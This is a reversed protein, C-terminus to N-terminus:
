TDTETAHPEPIGCPPNVFPHKVLFIASRDNLFGNFQPDIEKIRGIDIRNAATFLNDSTSQLVKSMPILNDNGGFDVAFHM